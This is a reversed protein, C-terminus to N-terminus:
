GIRWAAGDDYVPVKNAGGGAVITGFTTATADTVFNNASRNGAAPLQSVTLTPALALDLLGLKELNKLADYWEIAMLGSRPDIVPVDQNPIRVKM